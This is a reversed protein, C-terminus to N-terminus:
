ILRTAVVPYNLILALFGGFAIYGSHDRHPQGPVEAIQRWRRLSPLVEQKPTLCPNRPLFSLFLSLCALSLSLSLM